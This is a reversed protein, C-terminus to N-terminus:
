WSRKLLIDYHLFSVKKLKGQGHICSPFAYKQINKQKRGIILFKFFFGDTQLARQSLDMSICCMAIQDIDM